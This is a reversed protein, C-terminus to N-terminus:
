STSSSQSLNEIDAEANGAVEKVEKFNDVDTAASFLGKYLQPLATLVKVLNDVTPPLLEGSGDLDIGVKWEDGVKTQWSNTVIIAQAMVKLQVKEYIGERMEEPVHRYPKMLDKFLKSIKQNRAGVHIMKVRFSGYDFLVGNKEATEDTKFLDNLSPMHIEDEAGTPPFSM